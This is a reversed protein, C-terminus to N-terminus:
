KPRGKNCEKNDASIDTNRNTNQATFVSDFPLTVTGVEVTFRMRVQQFELEYDAGM